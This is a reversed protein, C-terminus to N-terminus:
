PISPEPTSPWADTRTQWIVIRTQGFLRSTVCALGPLVLERDVDLGAEVEAVVLGGPALRGCALLKRLAPPLLNQGYPPDAFVVDFPRGGKKSVFQLVDAVFVRARDPAVDLRSLNERLLAALRPNKEVFTVEAAGRSLTEFGVSGTGAFLDLVRCSPWDVGLSGLISFLSERVRGTAPRCGKAEATKLERGKFTGGTLRM